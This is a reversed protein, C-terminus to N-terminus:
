EDLEPFLREDKYEMGQSQYYAKTMAEVIRLQERANELEEPDRPTGHCIPKFDDPDINKWYAEGFEKIAKNDM